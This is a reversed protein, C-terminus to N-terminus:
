EDCTGLFTSSEAEMDSVLYNQGLTESLEEELDRLAKDTPICDGAGGEPDQGVETESFSYQVTFSCIMEYTYIKKTKSRTEM